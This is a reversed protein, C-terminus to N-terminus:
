KGKSLYAKIASRDVDADLKRTESNKLWVVREAEKSRIRGSYKTCVFYDIPYRKGGYRWIRTCLRYYKKPIVDLEEKTERIFAHKATEGPDIHGGPIWTEGPCLDEDKRRIEALFEGNRVIIAGIFRNRQYKDIYPQVTNDNIQRPSISTHKFIEEELLLGVPLISGLHDYLTSKGGGSVKAVVRNKAEAVRGRLSMIGFPSVRYDAYAFVKFTWGRAKMVKPDVYSGDHPSVMSIIRGNVGAEKAMRETAKHDDEGYKRIARARLKRLRALEKKPLGKLLRRGVTTEMDFKVINGLDHILAGAVIEDKNIRPGKWNKCIIGAVAAARLMHLRLNQPVEFRDYISQISDIVEQADM